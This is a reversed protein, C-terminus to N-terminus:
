QFVRIMMLFFGFLFVATLILKYGKFFIWEPLFTDNLKEKGTLHLAYIHLPCDGKGMVLAGAELFILSISIWSIWNIKGSLGSYLVYFVAIFMVIWIITHLLRITTLNIKM